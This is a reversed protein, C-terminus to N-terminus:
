IEITREEIYDAIEKFSKGEDNMNALKSAFKTPKGFKVLCIPFKATEKDPLEGPMVNTLLEDKSVRLIRGAVGLCCNEGEKNQLCSDVQKYRGSRLAKLWRTRFEKPM